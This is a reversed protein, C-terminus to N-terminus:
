AFISITQQSMAIARGAPTYLVAHQQSYGNAAGQAYVHFFWWDEGNRADGAELDDLLELHWTLSSIPKFESQMQLVAPPLLDMLAVVHAEGFHDADRFRIWVGLESQRSSSIPLQGIAYRMEFHKTFVPTVGEIYPFLTSAEPPKAEPQTPGAVRISSDRGHGFAASFSAGVEGNQIIRAETWTVSKGSRLTKCEIEAEGPGIPGIFSTLLARLPRDRGVHLRLAEVALAASLGGFATRGQLWDQTINVSYTSAASTKISGLLKHFPTQTM